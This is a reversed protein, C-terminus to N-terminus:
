PLEELTQALTRENLTQALIRQKQLTQSLTRRNLTQPRIGYPAIPDLVEVLLLVGAARVASGATLETLVQVGSAMVASGATVEALISVGSVIESM